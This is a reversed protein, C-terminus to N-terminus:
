MPAPSTIELVSHRSQTEGSFLLDINISLTQVSKEKEKTVDTDMKSCPCPVCTKNKHSCFNIWKGNPVLNHVVLGCPCYSLNLAGSEPARNGLECKSNPQLNRWRDAYCPYHIVDVGKVFEAQISALLFPPTPPLSSALSLLYPPVVLQQCRWVNAAKLPGRQPNYSSWAVQPVLAM